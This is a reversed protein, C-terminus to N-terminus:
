AAMLREQKVINSPHLAHLSPLGHGLMGLKDKGVAVRFCRDTASVAAAALAGISLIAHENGCAVGGNAYEYPQLYEAPCATRCPLGDAFSRWCAKRACDTAQAESSNQRWPPVPAATTAAKSTVGEYQPEATAPPYGMAGMLTLFGNQTQLQTAPRWQQHGLHQWRQQQTGSSNGQAHQWWQMGMAWSPAPVYAPLRMTDRWEAAASIAQQLTQQQQQTHAAKNIAVELAKPEQVPMGAAAPQPIGGAKPKAPPAKM